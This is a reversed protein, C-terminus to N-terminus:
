SHARKASIYCLIVYCIYYSYTSCLYKINSNFNTPRKVQIKKVAYMWTANKVLFIQSTWLFSWSRFVLIRPAHHQTANDYIVSQKVWLYICFQYKIYITTNEPFFFFAKCNRNRSSKFNKSNLDWLLNVM